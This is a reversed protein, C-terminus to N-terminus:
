ISLRLLKSEIRPNVFRPLVRRPLFPVLDVTPKRHIQARNKVTLVDWIGAISSCDGDMSRLLHVLSLNDLELLVKGFGSARALKLGDLAALAEAMLVDPVHEYFNTAAVVIRRLEYRIVAGSSSFSSALFAADTNVKMWGPHPKKGLVGKLFM